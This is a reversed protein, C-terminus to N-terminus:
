ENGNPYEFHRKDLENKFFNPFYEDTNQIESPDATLKQKFSQHHIHVGKPNM